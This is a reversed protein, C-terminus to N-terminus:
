VITRFTSPRLDRQTIYGPDYNTDTWFRCREALLQTKAIKIDEFYNVIGGTEFDSLGQESGFDVM